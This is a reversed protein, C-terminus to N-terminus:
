EWTSIRRRGSGQEEAEKKKRKAEAERGAEISGKSWGLARLIIDHAGEVEGTAIDEIGTAVGYFGPLPLGVAKELPDMIDEVTTRIDEWTIDEDEAIKTTMKM